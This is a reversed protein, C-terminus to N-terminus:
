ASYVEVETSSLNFSNSLSKVVAKARKTADKENDFTDTTIWETEQQTEVRVEVDYTDEGDEDSLFIQVKLQYTSDWRILKEVQKKVERLEM